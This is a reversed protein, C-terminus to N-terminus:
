VRIKMKMDGADPKTGCIYSFDRNISCISCWKMADCVFATRSYITMNNFGKTKRDEPSIYFREEKNDVYKSITLLFIHYYTHTLPFRHNFKCAL